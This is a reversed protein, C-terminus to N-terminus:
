PHIREEPAMEIHGVWGPHAKFDLFRSTSDALCRRWSEDECAVEIDRLDPTGFESARHNLIYNYTRLKMPDFGMLRTAVLDVAVLNEGALLVGGPKPDPVLPGKNEGGIVGDVVSFMRRQPTTRLQGQADAFYFLYLLDVVMRWASDNGYWNGSDLLRKEAPVTIGLPKIFRGHLWYAARHVYELCRNRRALLHDYMWRELRILRQEMPTLWGDPFQDGGESPTTLRYHILLNKNTTIGVLGKGNLTVGVKKHVKLKPVSIVVDASMITGSVQYEHTEGSHHEILENRQYVAGYLKDSPQGYLASQKSLNVVLNGRPDGPLPIIMSPFHRKASWYGRLDLLEVSPGSFRCYFDCVEDLQTAEVLETFNCDYQPADAVIVKGSGRLAIWCYDAVARLVSPHTIIGFVDKGEKHRSLVFNPKIVVTMGPEILRGLPNWRPTNWRERDLELRRFLERVGEYVLNAEGSLSEKFPYEPYSASPHFPSTRPYRAEKLRTVAVRQM